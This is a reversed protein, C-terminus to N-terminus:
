HLFQVPPQEYFVVPKLEGVQCVSLHVDDEIHCLCGCKRSKFRMHCCCQSENICKMERLTSLTLM